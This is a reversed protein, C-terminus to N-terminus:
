KLQMGAKAHLENLQHITECAVKANEALDVVDDVLMSQHVTQFALPYEKQYKLAHEKVVFNAVAPLSVNGFVHSLFQYTKPEKEPDFLWVFHHFKHDEQLLHIRLFMSSIDGTFAVPNIRMRVLIAQLNAILNPGPALAENINRGRFKAAGDM